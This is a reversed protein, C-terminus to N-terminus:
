GNVMEAMKKKILYNLKFHEAQALEPDQSALDLAAERARELLQRDEPLKALRFEPLGHQRTGFFEGPGRLLMDEEALRFGDNTETMLKLRQLALAEGTNTVLICYAQLRGRGVRGRLQHLQALGFRESNEIVMVTAQPVNVGVEIVTTSVLAKLVGAAFAAMIEEKEAASQRGHLLGVPFPSLRKKLQRFIEQANQLDMAESEEILPCVVFAQHGQELEQWLLQNLKERAKELICITKVPKRGPPMEDLLSIDLDGYLTLALTRPIPTASMVLMDPNDGKEQLLARQRVGFRHQEDIVILGLRQFVTKEQILAHTGVAIQIQGSALEEQLQRKEKQGMAGKFFGVKLGLPQFWSNFNDYHQQALIETPAMMAGQYSNEAALLLAWAAVATKGSGVDGQVLRAMAYPKAMDEKIEGIVRKQAGTLSFPLGTLWPETLNGKPLHVLGDHHLDKKRLLVLSLQLFFFEDFILRKRAEELLLWDKPRHIEELAEGIGMLQYKELFAASHHEEVSSSGDLVQAVAQRFLKQQLGQAAPYVALIKGQEEASEEETLLEMDQVLIELKGFQRRVKGTLLLRAGVVLKAKVYPQNFWIAVALATDDKVVAKLLHLGARPRQEEVKVVWAIVTSNQDAALEGLKLLSTRDEYRRPYHLLLDEASSIGMQELLKQKKPGIGKIFQLEMYQNYM